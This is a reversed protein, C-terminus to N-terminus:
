AKSMDCHEKERGTGGVTKGELFASPGEPVQSWMVRSGSCIGVFPFPGRVRISTPQHQPPVRATTTCPLFARSRALCFVDLLNM